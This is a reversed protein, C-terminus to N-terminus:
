DADITKLCCEQIETNRYKQWSKGMQRSVYEFWKVTQRENPSFTLGRNQTKLSQYLVLPRPVRFFRTVSQVSLIHVISAAIQLQLVRMEVVEIDLVVIFDPLYRRHHNWM